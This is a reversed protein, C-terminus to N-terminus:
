GHFVPFVSRYVSQMSPRTYTIDQRLMTHILRDVPRIIRGFRSRVQTSLSPNQSQAVPAVTDISHSDTVDDTQTVVTLGDTETHTLVDTNCSDSQSDTDRAVATSVDTDTVLRSDSTFSEKLGESVEPDSQSVLPASVTGEKGASEVEASDPFSSQVVWEVTRGESDVPEHGTERQVQQSESCSESSDHDVDMVDPLFDPDDMSASDNGSKSLQASPSSSGPDTLISTDDMPLFNVLMLMNRHVVREKGTATDRIKYTHTEANRDVVTYVTSEWRDAVKRKGREKKNAVLVRDGIDIAPGKASRNYLEAHRHQEKTAHEQAILMAGQLDKVLSVVYKDYSVVAPDNLVNRFLVDVPLRPIRGFMLFFPAYGTTEHVTSNYMFTLTQLHRPWNAKTDPALARIMNGLTRNFREVSGNGMPHYPTTHSKRVGSVRLLESILQSEFSAGQDSHIREPFGFICFFKDWLVRAVQKASQDKCPFAQAMRTFHDTVVLVDVSRNSADEASWFDICVLQLPRTSMISELPARDVPEVTKSVICRKCSRVYDRVDRDLSLWFFRQRALGLSRFQGQHGADDHVGRLVAAKLSEPVVYQHRKSKTILDKSVRYLIGNSLVFKEWHKLYRLATVSEKARERRSPRRRREVYYLVRSLAKDKLQEDRLEKETYAPLAEQGGPVIQPVHQLVAVARTRAGTEWESHSQLVASVEDMGLSQTYVAASVSEVQDDGQVPNGDRASSCRFTDRVCDTTLGQVESLLSNLPEELLRLGVRQKVFPVRSLADAVVNQPGPVYKIDFNYGALKAVWRQECCDLKPKTMIHTLPNNDTWVTFVHGKLWHSFKDSVAWKLALFELRHAPYNRQSQSLSKSAFAIPRAKTEGEKIQSLVAGIGDLSADVSLMFPRTFDPHALVVAEALLSKLKRFAQEMDHTWDSASLKRNQSRQKLKRNGKCKRKQGTLLSFLPKAVASYNPVFHQYYNIMGLFSRVRRASPTMGDTEMLDASTVKAIGDIKSPDTSVGSEDVMHGLFRVSKRLFFCKKPALKLNHSRLRSFVMELRQLATEEDPAFVLLDDLYCLLSLYNQDGFISTMMRMFSGPSNCLGQPLRNYEYLGMPTTFASYKRDLEHLPMNYFGSTLDMTSFLSNGGLAALCDAQHPLPHADKFTRKNLWRFDTCVRLDGNKKWVLVLPSAYESTSKRIIEKEEMETLVQRLKQYQSPPVRRFPLRFPRHDSLHIRHVFEKAEGCDLHHRSFIDNYHVILETLKDKCQTSVDCSNMDIGSLGVSNLKENASCENEFPSAVLSCSAMSLEATDTVDMDELAICPFVDALKANRRVLVPKDSTNILKLPVWRDGWLSTVMRAVLIGRPASRCSTLETLVTSGPSVAASKPLKGWMLYERGPELCVASNSRVTGIKDPVEEGRWRDLGALMSLFQESESDGAPCPTSVAKWYADCQKYQRLIHKIVNTGLIMEDHQGQVVLTPVTIKCGYVEMNLHVASEPSVRRGGCGILVVDTSFQDHVTIVGAESLKTKADENITCAMSGSDMMANLTVANGFKVPTYFLSDSGVVKHINQYVVRVNNCSTTHTNYITEADSIDECQSSSDLGM